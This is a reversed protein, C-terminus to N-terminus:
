FRSQWRFYVHIASYPGSFLRWYHVRKYYNDPSYIHSLIKRYDEKLSGIGMGPIITTSGGLDDGLFQNILRNEKHLREYRLSFELQTM